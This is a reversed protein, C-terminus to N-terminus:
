GVMSVASIFRNAFVAKEKKRNRCAFILSCSLRDVQFNAELNVSV